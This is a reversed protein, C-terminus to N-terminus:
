TRPSEVPVPESKEPEVVTEETEPLANQAEAAKKAKRRAVAERAIRARRIADDMFPRHIEFIEMEIEERKELIVTGTTVYEYVANLVKMRVALRVFWQHEFVYFYMSIIKRFARDSVLCPFTPNDNKM